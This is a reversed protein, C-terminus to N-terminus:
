KSLVDEYFAIYDRMRKQGYAVKFNTHTIFFIKEDSSTLIAQSQPSARFDEIYNQAEDLTKFHSIYPLLHTQKYLFTFVKLNKGGYNNNNFDSVKATADRKSIRNKDIFMLVFIKDNPAVKDNFGQYRPDSANVAQEEETAPRLDQQNALSPNNAPNVPGGLYSLTKQAMPTVEAKPYKTVVYTLIQKLSDQKGTYGYSMGRIYHIRAMDLDIPSESASVQALLFESFGISTEYQKNSFASFLGNYAYKFEEEERKLENPDRGQILLAFVTNPHNTLIYN